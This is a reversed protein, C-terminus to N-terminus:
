GIWAIVEALREASDELDLAAACAVEPVETVEITNLILADQSNFYQVWWVRAVGTATVRCNGYGRSLLTVPGRGLCLDLWAGDEPGFPLLSLNIVHTQAQPRVAQEAIEALLAPANIVGATVPLAKPTASRRSGALRVAAPVEGVEVRDAFVAGDRDKGLLRWVGAFVSEQIGLTGGEGTVQASVEGEGLVQDVLERDPGSLGGLSLAIPAQGPRWARVAALLGELWARAGACGLAEGPEPLIPPSYTRMAQPMPLYNLAEDETQSGPGLAVVPIPFAQM